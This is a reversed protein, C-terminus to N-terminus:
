RNMVAVAADIFLNGSDVGNPNNEYYSVAEEPSATGTLHEIASVNVSSELARVLVVDMENAVIAPTIERSLTTFYDLRGFVSESVAADTITGSRAQVTLAAIESQLNAQITNFDNKVIDQANLGQAFLLVLLLTAMKSFATTVFRKSDISFIREKM